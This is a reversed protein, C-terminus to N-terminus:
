DGSGGQAESTALVALPHEGESIRQLQENTLTKMDVNFVEHPQTPKGYGRNAAFELAKLHFMPGFEGTACKELFAEVDERSALARMRDRFENPPRGHGGKNGANGTKLKGGNPATRM